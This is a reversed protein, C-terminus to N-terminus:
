RVVEPCTGVLGNVLRFRIYEWGYGDPIDGAPVALGFFALGEATPRFPPVTGRYDRVIIEREAELGALLPLRGPGRSALAPTIRHRTAWGSGSAVHVDVPVREVLAIAHALFRATDPWETVALVEGMDADHIAYRM